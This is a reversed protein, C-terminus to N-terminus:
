RQWSVELDGNTRFRYRHETYGLAFMALNQDYYRPPDGYLESHSSWSANLRRQQQAAAATAQSAQLFPILAASFSIPGDGRLYPPGTLAFEPPLSRTKMYVAMASLEKLLADRGPTGAATLGSWLYVRIADYSGTAPGDAKDPSAVPKITGEPSVQLWDPAFGGLSGGHLLLPLSTAVQQWPGEPQVRAAAHLLFLPTYSPNLVVTGNHEFGNAAPQLASLGHVHSIEQQAILKLLAKGAISYEPHKWLRGAEILDYAIWLDGDSASNTDMPGKTGDPREGWSWAPLHEDLKGDALNSVTWRYLGDFSAQDNAVLAFFMAYSQGESTTIGSRDHDVVRGGDQVFHEAYHTWLPWVSQSASPLALLLSAATLMFNM